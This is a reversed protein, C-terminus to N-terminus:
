LDTREGLPRNCSAVHQLGTEAAIERDIVRDEGCRESPAVGSGLEGCSDGVGSAESEEAHAPKGRTAM